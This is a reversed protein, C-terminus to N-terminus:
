QRRKRWKARDLKSPLDIHFPDIHRGWRWDQMIANVYYPLEVTEHVHRQLGKPRHPPWKTSVHLIMTNVHSEWGEALYPALALSIPDRGRRDPDAHDIHQRTVTLRM